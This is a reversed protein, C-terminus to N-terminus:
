KLPAFITLGGAWQESVQTIESTLMQTMCWFEMHPGYAKLLLVLRPDRHVYASICLIPAYFEDSILLDPVGSLAACIDIGGSLCVSASQIDPLSAMQRRQSQIDFEQLTQPFYWGVIPGTEAALILEKYRSGLALKINNPLESNSQLIAKFHSGPFFTTFSSKLEPLLATELEEGLDAGRTKRAVVFPVKVGKALSAYAASSAIQEFLSEAKLKFQSHTVAVPVSNFQKSKDLILEYDIDPQRIKYYFSPTSGFVRATEDPIRRGNDDFFKM